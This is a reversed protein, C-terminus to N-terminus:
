PTVVPRITGHPPTPDPDDAPVNFLLCRDSGQEIEDFLQDLLSRDSM